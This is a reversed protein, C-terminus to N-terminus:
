VKKFGCPEYYLKYEEISVTIMEKFVIVNVTTTSVQVRSKARYAALRRLQEETPNGWKLLDELVQREGKRCKGDPSASRICTGKVRKHKM